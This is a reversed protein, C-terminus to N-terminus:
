LEDRGSSVRVRAQEVARYLDAGATSDLEFTSLIAPVANRGLLVEHQPEQDPQFTSKHMRSNVTDLPMSTSTSLSSQSYPHLKYVEDLSDSAEPVIIGHELLSQLYQSARYARYHSWSRWVCFFFPLNPIIPILKFPATLPAVLMWFYFGRRHRPIRHKTNARLESLVESSSLLSPPFVIPITVTLSERKEEMARTLKLRAISPGLSPDISKLALEEFDLRDVIREGLQYTRLRWGGDAKGFGAWTDIGKRMVWNAIGELRGKKVPNGDGDKDGSDTTPHPPNPRPAALAFQYYTLRTRKADSAPFKRATPRTLPIAIIRMKRLGQLASSM